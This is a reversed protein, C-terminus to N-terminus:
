VFKIKLIYFKENNVQVFKLLEPFGELSKVKHM